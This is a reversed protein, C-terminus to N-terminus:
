EQVELLALHVKHLRHMGVAEAAALILGAMAMPPHLMQVIEELPVEVQVVPVAVLVVEVAPM